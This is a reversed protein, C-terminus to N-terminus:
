EFREDEMRNIHIMFLRKLRKMEAQRKVEAKRSDEREQEQLKRYERFADKAEKPINKM